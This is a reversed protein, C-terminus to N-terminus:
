AEVAETFWGLLEDERLIVYQNGMKAAPGKTGAYGPFLVKQGVKVEPPVISGDHAVRGTGVAVVTGVKPENATMAPDTPLHLKGSGPGKVDKAHEGSSVAEPPDQLVLIKDRSTQFGSSNINM